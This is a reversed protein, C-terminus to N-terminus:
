VAIRRRSAVDAARLPEADGTQRHKGVTGKGRLRLIAQPGISLRQALQGGGIDGAGELHRRAIRKDTEIAAGIEQAPEALDDRCAWTDETADIGRPRAPEEIMESRERLIAADRRRRDKSLEQAMEARDPRRPQREAAHRKAIAPPM